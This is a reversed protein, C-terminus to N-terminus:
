FAAESSDSNARGFSATRSASVGVSAPGETLLLVKIISKMVAVTVTDQFVQTVTGAWHGDRHGGVAVPPM